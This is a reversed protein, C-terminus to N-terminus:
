YLNHIREESTVEISMDCYLRGLTYHSALSILIPRHDQTLYLNEADKLGKGKLTTEIREIEKKLEALSMAKLM